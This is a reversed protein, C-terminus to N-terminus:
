AGDGGSFNFDPSVNAENDEYGARNASYWTVLAGDIVCFDELTDLYVACHTENIFREGRKENALILTSNIRGVIRWKESLVLKDTDLDFSRQWEIFPNEVEAATVPNAVSVAGNVVVAGSGSAPVALVESDVAKEPIDPTFMKYLYWVCVATMVLCAPVVVTFFASKFLNARKDPKEEMGSSYGTKNHTHSQYYRFIEKKYTGFLQRLPEGQPKQGVAAGAYVDVRYKNRQGVASLKRARYTEEVLNRVFAAIQQLDQTVLIIENTRGDDGVVHRHETFFQRATEPMNSAKLGSPWYRWAEDIIFVAGSPQNNLNWFDDSVSSDFQIVSGKPFDESLYGLKLPINTIIKRGDKLAPIIVNEVVGYSKGSGPLGVYAVISM